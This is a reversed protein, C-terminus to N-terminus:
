FCVKLTNNNMLIMEFLFKKKLDTRFSNFINANYNLMGGTSCYEFITCVVTLQVGIAYLFYKVTKYM